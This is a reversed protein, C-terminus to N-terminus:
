KENGNYINVVLKGKVKRSKMKHYCEDLQDLEFSYITDISTKLEGNDVYTAITKLDNSTVICIFLTYNNKQCFTPCAFKSIWGWVNSQIAIFKTNKNLFPKLAQDYKMGNIGDGKDGSSVTDYIMSIDKYQKLPSKSTDLLLSSDTYDLITDCVNLAQVFPISNTSCIGIVKGDKGVFSRAVQCGIYGCGGSAGIIVAVNDKTVNGYRMAQLGTCAVVPLTSAEIFSMSLPKLSIEKENAICKEVLSGKCVGYVKDGVNYLRSKTLEIVGAFDLGIIDGKNLNGMDIYKYDVPNIGAAYVKVLVDGDKLNNEQPIPITIIKGIKNPCSKDVTFAKM